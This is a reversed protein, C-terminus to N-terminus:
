RTSPWSWAALWTKALGCSLPQAVGIKITDPTRDCGALTISFLTIEAASMVHLRNFHKM